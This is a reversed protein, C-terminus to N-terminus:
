LHTKAPVTELIISEQLVRILANHFLGSGAVFQKRELMKDQGSLDTIMGGAEQLLLVGAAMDWPCAVQEFAADYRGAAVYALDLSVVGFCRFSVGSIKMKQM